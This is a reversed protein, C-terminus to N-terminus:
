SNRHTTKRGQSQIGREGLTKNMDNLKTFKELESIKIAQAIKQQDMNESSVALAIKKFLTDNILSINQPVYSINEHWSFSM